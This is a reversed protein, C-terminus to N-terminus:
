KDRYRSSCTGWWTKCTYTKEATARSRERARRKQRKRREKEKQTKKKAVASAKQKQPPRMTEPWAEAQLIGVSFTEGQFLMALLHLRGRGVCSLRRAPRQGVPRKRRKHARHHLPLSAGPEHQQLQEEQQVEAQCGLSVCWLQALAMTLWLREVCSARRMKSHHWGWLGRKFDKFGGEIWTRVGDWSVLAEQPKLDTLIVWASEYGAEWHMLLTGNVRSNKGAFCEVEGQWSTGPTPVWRSIWEFSPEGVLRAKVALNLRLFPHWGCARITEWLWRAYLGRDALVLVQWEPPVAGQLGTLLEQWYPRWSGEQEAPLVKWAVPMACSRIVVSSTLITWRNGLTTADMVLAVQKRESKWLRLAWRLLPAFCTTVDLEQRKKGSKQTADRYWERLRQFVTQEGQGLVLSLLASIQTIGACGSLAIGASWLVLGWIQRRSLHPFATSVESEWQSLRDPHSM